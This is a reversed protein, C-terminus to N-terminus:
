RGGARIHWIAIRHLMLLDSMLEDNGTGSYHLWSWIGWVISEVRGWHDRWGTSGPKSLTSWEVGIAMMINKEDNTM